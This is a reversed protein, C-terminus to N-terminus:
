TGHSGDPRCSSASDRWSASSPGLSGSGASRLNGSGWWSSPGTPARAGDVPRLSSAPQPRALRPFLVTRLRRWREDPSLSTVRRYFARWFLLLQSPSLVAPFLVARLHRRREDPSLSTVRRYFARWVTLGVLVAVGTAWVLLVLVPLRVAAVEALLSHARIRQTYVLRLGPPAPTGGVPAWQVNLSRAGGDQWHEIELRHAGAALEVTRAVTHM